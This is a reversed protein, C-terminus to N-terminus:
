AKRRRQQEAELEAALEAPSASYRAVTERLFKPTYHAYIQKTTMPSAHGLVDQVESLSATRM